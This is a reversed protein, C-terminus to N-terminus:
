AVQNHAKPSAPTRLALGHAKAWAHGRWMGILPGGAVLVFAVVLVIEM